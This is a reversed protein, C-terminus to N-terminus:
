SSLITPAPDQALKAAVDDDFEHYDCTIEEGPHIDRVALDHEHGNEDVITRTNPDDSHNMFRADDACLIGMGTRKDVYAFHMIRDRAFQPLENLAELPFQLDFQPHLEWVVAGAPIFQDAFVGLGQIESMALKTKVLLM